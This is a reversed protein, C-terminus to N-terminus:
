CGTRCFVEIGAISPYDADAKFALNLTGDSVTIDNFALIYARNLGGTAAFIDFNDRLLTGEASIDQLRKAAATNGSAREAFHLRIDVKTATGTPLAYSLIRQSQSVAGVNGRYTRYIPDDITRDIELPTTTAGENPATSPSFLGSDPRWVSGNADTYNSTAGVDLRQLVPGTWEPKMNSLLYVNDNYDYNIGSYDMSVIWSDAIRAGARDRAAWFRV